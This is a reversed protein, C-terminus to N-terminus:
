HFRPGATEKEYGDPADPDLGAEEPNGPFSVNAELAALLPKLTEEHISSVPLADLRTALADLTEPDVLDMKNLVRMTPVAELHLDALIRDVSEVQELVRPNSADIVHLLLNAESLEELTARFAVMLEKPLNRIFGVTDTIIVETDRPFKLRRSTPDLTAFLRSEALVKSHTLTNLLTSKGANTYGVISIVPIDQRNRLSRRVGRQKQVQELEKELRHIRERARRRDIELKAEGPGRAGIGGALRSLATNSGALRPLRYKLQALEVQLKGERTMARQAFIDLILQTRDIVKLDAQDSISRMQSANLEHDFIVLDADKQLVAVALDRLKGRGLLFRPDMRHRHQIMTGAVEVSTSECLQILEEMSREADERGQTTVSVLLARTRTRAEKGRTKQELEAELEAVFQSLAMDLGEVGFPPLIEYPKGTPGDPLLHAVHFRNPLGNATFTVAALLDLRTFALDTLDEDTVGEDKLHTHVLRLGKLRGSGFRQGSLDPLTVSGPDGVLVFAVEGSREILVGVQRRIEASLETLARALEPSVLFEAPTRRRYLNQLKKIHLAKLGALNGFPKKM